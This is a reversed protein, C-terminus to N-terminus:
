RAVGSHAATNPRGVRQPTAAGAKAPDIAAWWLASPHHPDKM